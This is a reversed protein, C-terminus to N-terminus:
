LDTRTIHFIRVIWKKFKRKAMHITDKPSCNKRNVAVRSNGVTMFCVGLNDRYLPSKKNYWGSAITSFALGTEEATLRFAERLNNPYNMVHKKLIEATEQKKTKPNSLDTPIDISEHYRLLKMKTYCKREEVKLLEAAVKAGKATGYKTMCRKLVEIEQASWVKKVRKKKEEKLPRKAM